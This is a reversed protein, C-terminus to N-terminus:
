ETKGNRTCNSFVNPSSRRWQPRWFNMWRLLGGILHRWKYYWRLVCQERGTCRRYSTYPNQRRNNWANVSNTIRVNNTLRWKQKRHVRFVVTWQCANDTFVKCRQRVEKDGSRMASTGRSIPLITGERRWDLCSIGACEGLKKICSNNSLLITIILFLILVYNKNFIPKVYFFIKQLIGNNYLYKSNM